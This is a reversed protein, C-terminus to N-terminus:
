LDFELRHADSPIKTKIRHWTFVPSTDSIILSKVRFTMITSYNPSKQTKKLQNHDHYISCSLYKLCLFKNKNLNLKKVKLKLKVLM